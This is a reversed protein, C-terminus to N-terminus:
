ELGLPSSDIAHAAAIMSDDLYISTTGVNAHGAIQAVTAIDVGSRALITLATHRLAHPTAHRDLNTKAYREIMRQIDRSNLRWGRVSVFLARGADAIRVAEIRDGTSAEPPSPRGEDLYRQIAEMTHVSIPIDREKRGKGVVHLVPTGTEEHLRIDSRNAKCVESVRPGSETLLRLIAEDRLDLALRDRSPEKGDQTIDRQYPATRLARAEDIPLGLRAGKARKPTKPPKLRLTPDVQVYGKDAAWRFLGKVAVLWRAVAHPGRGVPKSGDHGIKLGKTYRRDESRSIRTMGADLDDAEIDDLVTTAGFLDIFERLDATYANLTNESLDNRAVRRELAETYELVADAVSVRSLAKPAAM